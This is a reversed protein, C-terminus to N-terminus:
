FFCFVFEFTFCHCDLLVLVPLHLQPGKLDSNVKHYLCMLQHITKSSLSKKPTVAIQSPLKFQQPLANLKNSLFAAAKFSVM